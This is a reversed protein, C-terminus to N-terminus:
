RSDEVVKHSSLGRYGGGCLSEHVSAPLVGVAHLVSISSARQYWCPKQPPLKLHALGSARSSAAPPSEADGLQVNKRPLSPVPTSINWLATLSLPLVILQLHTALFM